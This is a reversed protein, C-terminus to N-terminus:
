KEEISLGDRDIKIEVGGKQREEYLRYGLVAVVVLLAGVVLYLINRRKM